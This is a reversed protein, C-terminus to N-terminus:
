TVRMLLEPRCRSSSILATSSWALISAPWRVSSFIAKSKEAAISATLLMMPVRAASLPSAKTALMAGSRGRKTIPSGVRRRWTSILRSPLAILNVSCPETSSRTAWSAPRMTKLTRSVPMPMACAASSCRNRGKLWASSETVRLNPPVPRPRCIELSSISAIPPAMSTSLAGPTPVTNQNESGSCAAASADEDAGGGWAARGGSAPSIGPGTSSTSSLRTLWCSPQAMSSRSPRACSHASSPASARRRRAPASNAATSISMSIGTMSPMAAVRAIRASSARVPLARMGITAMVALARCSSRSRQRAAPM